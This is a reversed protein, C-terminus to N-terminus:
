CVGEFSFHAQFKCIYGPGFSKGDCWSCYSRRADSEENDPVLIHEHRFGKLQM